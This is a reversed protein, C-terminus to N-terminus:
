QKRGGLYAEIVDENQVVDAPNGQALVSGQNLVVLRQSVSLLLSLVHEILLVTLGSANVSVLLADLREIEPRTLGSAPEDLMLVAPGSMLASAIMLQKKEYVSLNRSPIDCRKGDFEVLALVEDSRSRAAARGLQGNYTGCVLLTERATLDPFEADKQFTRALGSRAIRHAPWRDIRQGQFRIEGSTPGFPVGTILNFLTSKGSGNPGAIGLIEGRSVGFSVGDVAKLGGFHKSANVVELITDSM